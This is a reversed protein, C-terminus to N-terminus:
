PPANATSPTGVLSGVNASSALVDSLKVLEEVLFRTLGVFVTREEADPFTCADLTSLGIFDVYFERQASSFSRTLLASQGERIQGLM